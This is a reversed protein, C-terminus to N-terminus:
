SDKRGIQAVCEFYKAPNRCIGPECSAHEALRRHWALAQAEMNRHLKRTAAIVDIASM